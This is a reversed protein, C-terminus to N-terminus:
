PCSQGFRNQFEHVDHLTVDGDADLDAANFVTDGCGANGSGPGGMCEVWLKFDDYSVVSDGDLNGPCTSSHAEPEITLFQDGPIQSFNVHRPEGLNAGGGIGPLVQNSVFDHQLGNIFACVKIPGPAGMLRTADLSIEIGTEVKYQVPFRINPDGPVGMFNENNITMRIDDPNEGGSLTGDSVAETSGLYRGTGGGATHLEAWHARIAFPNGGCTVGLWYDPEFDPDFTLGPGLVGSASPNEGGANEGMRNLGNGDVQSNDGRLRNQGGPKSDFFIELKNGNSELNGGFLLLLRDPDVTSNLVAYANALESGNALDVMGLFSDGFGTHTDQEAIETGYYGDATGDMKINGNDERIPVFQGRIQGEPHSVSRVQLYAFGTTLHNVGQPTLMAQDRCWVGSGDPRDQCGDLNVAAIESGNIGPPAANISIDTIEDKTLGTASVSVHLRGTPEDLTAIATATADNVTPPVVEEGTPKTWFSRLPGASYGMEPQSHSAEIILEYDVIDSRSGIRNTLFSLVAVFHDSHLGHTLNRASPRLSHSYRHDFQTAYIRKLRLIYREGPAEGHPATHHRVFGSLMLMDNSSDMPIPEWPSEIYDIQYKWANGGSLTGQDYATLNGSQYFQHNCSGPEDQVSLAIPAAAISRAPAGIAALSCAVTVWLHTKGVESKETSPRM